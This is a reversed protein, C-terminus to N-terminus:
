LAPIPLNDYYTEGVDKIYELILEETEVNIFNNNYDTLHPDTNNNYCEEYYARVYNRDIWRFLQRQVGAENTTLPVTIQIEYTQYTKSDYICHAYPRGDTDIFELYLVDNGFCQWLYPDGAYKIRGDTAVLVDLLKM